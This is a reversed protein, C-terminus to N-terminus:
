PEQLLRSAQEPSVMLQPPQSRPSSHSSGESQLEPKQTFLLQASHEGELWLQLPLTGRVQELAPLQCFPVGQEAGVLPLGVQLPPVQPKLQREPNLFHWFRQMEFEAQQEFPSQGFLAVHEFSAQTQLGPKVPGLQTAMKSGM